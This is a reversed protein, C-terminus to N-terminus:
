RRTIKERTVGKKEHCWAKESWRRIQIMTMKREKLKSFESCSRGCSSHGFPTSAWLSVHHRFITSAFLLIHCDFAVFDFLEVTFTKQVNGKKKIKKNDIRCFVIILLNKMQIEGKCTSCLVFMTEWGQSILQTLIEM